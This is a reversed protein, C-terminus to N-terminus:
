AKQSFPTFDTDRDYYDENETRKLFAVVRYTVRTMAIEWGTKLLYQVMAVKVIDATAWIGYFAIFYFLASDVLEGVVDEEDGVLKVAPM